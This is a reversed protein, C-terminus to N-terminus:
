CFFSIMQYFTWSIAVVIFVLFSIGFCWCARMKCTQCASPQSEAGEEEPGRDGAQNAQEQGERTFNSASSVGSEFIRDAFGNRPPRANHLGRRTADPPGFRTRPDDEYVGFRWGESELKHLASAYCASMELRLVRPTGRLSCDHAYSITPFGTTAAVSVSDDRNGLAFDDKNVDLVDNLIWSLLRNSKIERASAAALRANDPCTSLASIERGGYIMRVCLFSVTRRCHPCAFLGHSQLAHRESAFACDKHVCHGCEMRASSSSEMRDLCVACVAAEDEGKVREIEPGTASWMRREVEVLVSLDDDAGGGEQMAPGPSSRALNRNPSVGDPPLGTFVRLWEEADLEDNSDRSEFAGAVQRLWESELEDSSDSRVRGGPRRGAETDEPPRVELSALWEEDTSLGFASDAESLGERGESNDEPPAVTGTVPIMAALAPQQHFVLFAGAVFEDWPRAADREVPMLRPTSRRGLASNSTNDGDQNISEAQNETKM